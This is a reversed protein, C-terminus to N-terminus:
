DNKYAGEKNVYDFFDQLDEKFPETIEILSKTKDRVHKEFDLIADNITFPNEIQMPVCGIRSLKTQGNAGIDRHMIERVIFTRAMERLEVKLWNPDYDAFIGEQNSDEKSDKCDKELKNAFDLLRRAQEYDQKEIPINALQECM